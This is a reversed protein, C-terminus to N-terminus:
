KKLKFEKWFLVQVPKEGRIFNMGDWEAYRVFRKMQLTRWPEPSIQYMGPKKPKQKRFEIWEDNSPENM